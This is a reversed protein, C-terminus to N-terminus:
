IIESANMRPKPKRGGKLPIVGEPICTTPMKMPVSMRQSVVAISQGLTNHRSPRISTGSRLTFPMRCDESPFAVKAKRSNVKAHVYATELVANTLCHATAKM